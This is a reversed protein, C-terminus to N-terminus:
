AVPHGPALNDQPAASGASSPHPVTDELCFSRSPTPGSELRSLEESLRQWASEETLGYTAASSARTTVLYRRWAM